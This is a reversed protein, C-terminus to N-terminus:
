RSGPLLRELFNQLTPITLALGLLADPKGPPGATSDTQLM